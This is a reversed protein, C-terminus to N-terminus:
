VRGELIEEIGGYVMGLSPRPEVINEIVGAGVLNREDEQELEM